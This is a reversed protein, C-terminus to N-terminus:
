TKAQLTKLVSLAVRLCGEHVAVAERYASGGVYTLPAIAADGGCWDCVTLGSQKDKTVM